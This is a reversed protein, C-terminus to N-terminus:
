KRAELAEAIRITYCKGIPNEHTSLKQMLKITYDFESIEPFHKIFQLTLQNQDQITRLIEPQTGDLLEVM